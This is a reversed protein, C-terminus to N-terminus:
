RACVDGNELPIDRGWLFAVNVIVAVLAFSSFATPDHFSHAVLLLGGTWAVTAIGAWVRLSPHRPVLGAGMCMAAVFLGSMQWFWAPDIDLRWADSDLAYVLLLAAVAFQPAGYRAADRIAHV